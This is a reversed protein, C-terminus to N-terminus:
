QKDARNAAIQDYLRVLSFRANLRLEVLHQKRAMMGQVALENIHRQQQEILASVRGALSRTEEFQKTIRTQYGGLNQENRDVAQKLSDARSVAQQLIQDLDSLARKLQWYRGVYETEIRYSLLGSILRYKEREESVDRKASLRQLSTKVEALQELYEQEDENALSLYDKQEGIRKVEAAMVDRQRRFKQLQDFGSFEEVLPKKREFALRRENLMLKLAPLDNEWQALFDAIDLLEHYRKIEVQFSKRAMMPHLFTSVSSVPLKLPRGGERKQEVLRNRRLAQVLENKEIDAIAADMENLLQDFRGAAQDYFLASLELNGKQEYAHPIALLAELSATDTQNKDRLSQWLGLAKDPSNRRSWGWGSALLAHNTLPSVSRVKSMYAIASSVDRKEMSYLGLALQARDGLSQMEEDRPSFIAMKQVRGLWDRSAEWNQKLAIGLNYQTYAKWISNESIQNSNKVADGFQKKGIHYRNLLYQRQDEFRQPLKGEIKSLLEGVREDNGKEEEINALSFWIRNRTEASSNEDLLRNFISEADESLGYSFYLGGKLLEADEAQQKLAKRYEAVDLETIAQLHQGRFLHYLAVGYPLDEVVKEHREQEAMLLGPLSICALLLVGVMRKHLCIQQMDPMLSLPM